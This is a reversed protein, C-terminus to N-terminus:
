SRSFLSFASWSFAIFSCSATSLTSLLILVDANPPGNCIVRKTSINEGRKHIHKGVNLVASSVFTVSIFTIIPIILPLKDRSVIKASLDYKNGTIVITQTITKEIGTIIEDSKEIVEINEVKDSFKATNDIKRWKEKM